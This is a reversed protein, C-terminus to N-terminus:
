TLREAQAMRVARLLLGGFRVSVGRAVSAAWAYAYVGRGFVYLACPCPVDATGLAHTAWVLADRKLMVYHLLSPDRM